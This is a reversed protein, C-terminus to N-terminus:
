KFQSKCIPAPPTNLHCNIPEDVFFSSGPLFQAVAECPFADSNGSSLDSPDLVCQVPVASSGVALIAEPLQEQLLLSLYSHEETFEHLPWSSHFLDLNEPWSPYKTSMGDKPPFYLSVNQAQELASCYPKKPRLFAISAIDAM